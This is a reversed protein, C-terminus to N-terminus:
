LGNREGGLKATMMDTLKEHTEDEHLRATPYFFARASMHRTGFEVFPAYYAKGGGMQVSALLAKRALKAKISKKLTGDNVPCRTKIHDRVVKAQSNLINRAEDQIEKSAKRLEKVLEDHGKVKVTITDSM